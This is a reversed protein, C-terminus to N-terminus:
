PQRTRPAGLPETGVVTVRQAGLQRAAEVYAAVAAVLSERAAAGIYGDATVRDGLGLFVSEDLLPAVSHAGIAAM